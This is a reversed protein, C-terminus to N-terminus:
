LKILFRIAELSENTVIGGLGIIGSSSLLLTKRKVFIGKRGQTKVYTGNKSQDTLIYKGHKYKITAHLRSVHDKSISIDNKKLRGMSVQKRDENIHIIINQYKVMLRSKFVKTMDSQGSTRSRPSGNIRINEHCRRCTIHGLMASFEKANIRNKAGCDECFVIM